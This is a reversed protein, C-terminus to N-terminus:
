GVYSKMIDRKRHNHLKEVHIEFNRSSICSQRMNHLKIWNLKCNLLVEIKQVEAPYLSAAKNRTTMFEYNTSMAPILLFLKFSSTQINPSM